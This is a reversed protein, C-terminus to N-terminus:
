LCPFSPLVIAHCFVYVLAQLQTVSSQFNALFEDCTATYSPPLLRRVKPLLETLMSAAFWLSEAAVVRADLLGHGDDDGGDGGDDDDDDDGCAHLQPQSWSELLISSLPVSDHVFSSSSSSSSSPTRGEEAPRVYYVVESLARELYERLSDFEGRCDLACSAMRSSSSGGKGKSSGYEGFFVARENASVFGTFVSCVYLDFLQCLGQFVTPATAPMLFMMQLYRGACRTLGSFAAQTVVPCSSQGDAGGLQSKRRSSNSSSGQQKQPTLSSPESSTLLQRFVDVGPPSSSARAAGPAKQPTSTVGGEGDEESSSDGESENDSLRGIMDTMFHLPNGQMGCFVMISTGLIVGRTPPSSTAGGEYRKGEGDEEGSSTATATPFMDRRSSNFIGLEAEFALGLMSGLGHISRKNTMSHSSYGSGGGSNCSGALAPTSSAIVGLVGGLEQLSEGVPVNRWTDNDIMEKLIHFSEGHVQRYYERSKSELCSHLRRSESGCFEKGLKIVANLAWSLHLFDSQSVSVSTLVVLSLAGELGELLSEWLGARNRSLSQYCTSLQM